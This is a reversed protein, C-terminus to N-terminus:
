GARSQGRVGALRDSCDISDRKTSQAKRKQSFFSDTSWFSAGIMRGVNGVYQHLVETKNM